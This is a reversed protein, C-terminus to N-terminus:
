VWLEQYLSIEWTEPDKRVRYNSKNAIFYDNLDKVSKWQNIQERAADLLNEESIEKVQEQKSNNNSWKSAAQKKALDAMVNNYNATALNWQISSNNVWISSMTAPIQWEQQAVNALASERNANNQIMNLYAQNDISARAQAIQWAWAWLWWAHRMWWWNIEASLAAAQNQLDYLRNTSRRQKDVSWQLIDQASQLNMIQWNLWESDSYLQQYRQRSNKLNPNLNLTAKDYWSLEDDRKTLLSKDYDNDQWWLLDNMLNQNKTYADISEQLKTAM